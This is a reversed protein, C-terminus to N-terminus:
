AHTLKKRTRYIHNFYFLSFVTGALGIVSFIVVAASYFPTWRTDTGMWEKSLMIGLSGLYGFADVLYNLFGVNGKFRFTAIMREFFICNFPIYAMYLGLSTLQMWWTGNMAGLRFLWSSLGALVLGSLILLHTFRFARLNDRVLVMLCLIGLIAVSTITETRTFVGYDGAHGLESWMNAMYNDRIDRMITLLVYTVGIFILGLGYKHLFDKRDPGTMPPREKRDLVDGADPPPTRELLWLLLAIPPIFCAGAVFPMWGEPVHLGVLLWKAVSRTFGGAFIFSVALVSAILDTTRRGEVYSFVIGWMFGLVYGNALMCLMGWPKPVIAFLFLSFWALGILLAALKWRGTKKMRSILLIGYFKSLMYGILQSIILLTQYSIGWYSVGSFEAVTFPKRFGYVCAYTLFAVISLGVALRLRAAPSKDPSSLASPMTM